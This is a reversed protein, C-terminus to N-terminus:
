AAHGDGPPGAPASTIRRLRTLGRSAQSKVAGVTCGMIDATQAESLDAFYRLVLVARQRPPLESLARLLLDRDALAAAHDASAAHASEAPLPEEPRRRVRRWLDVSRNVMVQRVYPEPDGTRTIRRWRRYARELADQLLDEAESRRHGTLLLAMTFLRGSAGAVFAEFSTDDASAGAPNDRSVAAKLNAVCMEVIRGPL